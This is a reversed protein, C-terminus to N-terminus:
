EASSPGLSGLAFDETDILPTSLEGEPTDAARGAVLHAAVLLGLLLASLQLSYGTFATLLVLAAVVPKAFVILGPQRGAFHLAALCALFIAIPLATALGATTTSISAAGIEHDVAAAIGAGIAAASAFIVLHGYGWSFAGTASSLWRASPAEFYLWWLAFVTILGGVALSILRFSDHGADISTQIATTSSLVSEGLVILTFLGYREGIHRPNWTTHSAREAW